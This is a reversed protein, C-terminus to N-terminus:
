VTPPVSVKPQDTERLVLRKAVRKNVRKYLQMYFVALLFLGLVVWGPEKVIKLPSGDLTDAINDTVDFTVFLVDEMLNFLYQTFSLILLSVLHLIKFLCSMKKWETRELFKKDVKKKLEEVEAVEGDVEQVEIIAKFEEAAKNKIQIQMIVPVFLAGCVGIITIVSLFSYLGNEPEEGVKVFVVGLLICPVVRVISPLTLLLTTKFDHGKIGTFTGMAFDPAGGLLLVKKMTNGGQTLMIHAGKMQPTNVKCVLRLRLRKKGFRKGIWFQLARSSIKVFFCLGVTLLIANGLSMSGEQEAVSPLTMGAIIYTPVVPSRGIPALHILYGLTMLAISAVGLSYNLLGTRISSFILIVFKSVGVLLFFAILSLLHAKPIVSGFNWKSANYLRRSVGRTFLTDRYTISFYSKALTKRLIQKVLDLCLFFVIFPIFALLAAARGWDSNLFGLVKKGVASNRFQSRIYKLRFVTLTTIIMTFYILGVISFITGDIATTANALSLSFWLTVSSVAIFYVFFQEIPELGVAKRTEIRRREARYLIWLVGSLSILGCVFVGPSAWVLLAEECEPLTLGSDEFRQLLTSNSILNQFSFETENPEDCELLQHYEVETVGSYTGSLFISHLFLFLVAASSVVSGFIISQIYILKHVDSFLLKKVFSLVGIFVLIYVFFPAFLVSGSVLLLSALSGLTVLCFVLVRLYYFNKEWMQVDCLYVFVWLFLTGGGLSLLYVDEIDNLFLRFFQHGRGIPRDFISYELRTFFIVYVVAMLMTVLIGSVYAWRSKALSATYGGVEKDMFVVWSSVVRTSM